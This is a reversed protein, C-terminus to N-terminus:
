KVEGKKFEEVLRKAEALSYLKGDNLVASLIDKETGEWQQSQLFQDKTFGGVADTAQKEKAM